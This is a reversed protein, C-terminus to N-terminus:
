YLDNQVPMGYLFWYQEQPYCSQLRADWIFDGPKFFSRLTADISQIAQISREAEPEREAWGAIREFIVRQQVENTYNHARDAKEALDQIYAKWLNFRSHMERAAKRGLAVSWKRLVSEMQLNLKRIEVQQAPTMDESQADLEDLTLALRGPTLRPVYPRKLSSPDLPWYLEDSLLYTEFEELMVRVLALNADPAHM